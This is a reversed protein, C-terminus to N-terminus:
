RLELVRRGFTYGAHIPENPDHKCFQEEFYASALTLWGVFFGMGGCVTCGGDGGRTIGIESTLENHYPNSAIFIGFKNPKTHLDWDSVFAKKPPALHGASLAWNRRYAAEAPSIDTPYRDVPAHDGWRFLTPEGCGCLYGWEDPTPFRFGAKLLDSIAEAHTRILSKEATILGDSNQRVRITEGAGRCLQFGHKFNYQKRLSVIEPDDANVSEWGFERINTEALFPALEVTRPRLTVAGVREHISESFGYERATDGWSEAEEPTPSWSQEANFGL